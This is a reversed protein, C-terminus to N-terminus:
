KEDYKPLIMAFGEIAVVRGAFQYNEHNVRLVLKDNLAYDIDTGGLDGGPNTFTDGDMRLIAVLRHEFLREVTGEKAPFRINALNQRLRELELGSIGQQSPVPLSSLGDRPDFKPADVSEALVEHLRDAEISATTKSQASPEQVCGSLAVFISVLIMTKM